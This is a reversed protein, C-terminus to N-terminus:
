MKSQNLDKFDHLEETVSTCSIADPGKYSPLPWSKRQVGVTALHSKRGSHFVM